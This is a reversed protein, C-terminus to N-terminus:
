DCGYRKGAAVCHLFSSTKASIEKTFCNRRRWGEMQGKWGRGGERGKVRGEEGKRGGDLTYKLKECTQM